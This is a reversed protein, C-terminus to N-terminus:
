IEKRQLPLATSSIGEFSLIVILSFIASGKALVTTPRRKFEEFWPNPPHDKNRRWVIVNEEEKKRNNRRRNRKTIVRLTPKCTKAKWFDVDIFYLLSGISQSISSRGEKCKKSKWMLVHHQFFRSSYKSGFSYKVLSFFFM